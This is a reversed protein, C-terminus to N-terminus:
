FRARWRRLREQSFGEPGPFACHFAPRRALRPRRAVQGAAWRWVLSRALGAETGLTETRGSMIRLPRAVLWAFALPSRAAALFRELARRKRPTLQRGCRILLARAQTECNLYGYFYTARWRVGIRPFAAARRRWNALKSGHTVDGFVAGRHQVYDYLPEDV